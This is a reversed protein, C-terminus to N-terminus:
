RPDGECHASRAPVSDVGPAPENNWLKHANSNGGALRGYRRVRVGAGPGSVAPGHPTVGGDFRNRQPSSNTAIETKVIDLLFPRLKEASAM